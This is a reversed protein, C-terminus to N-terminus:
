SASCRSCRASPMSRVPFPRRRGDGLRQLHGAYRQFLVWYLISVPVGFIVGAVAGVKESTQGGKALTVACSALGVVASVLALRAAWRVWSASTVLEGVAAEPLASAPQGDLAPVAADAARPPEFPNVMLPPAAPHPEHRGAPHAALRAPQATRIRGRLHGEGARLLGAASRGARRQAPGAAHRRHGAPVFGPLGRGGLRDLGRGLPGAAGSGGSRVRGSRLVAEAVYNFSRFMGMADRLACRKYRREVTPRAPEGEFDIIVFDDGTFLVQGLHLDGHCRIRSVEIKRGVVRRLRDDLTREQPILAAALERTQPPLSGLRRRLTEFLRVLRVHSWQFISQQHQATFPEPVFAPDGHGAALVLHVDATRQGLQRALRSTAGWWSRCAPPPGLRAAEVLSAPPGPPPSALRQSLVRDFYLEIEDLTLNWADGENPVAEQALAM